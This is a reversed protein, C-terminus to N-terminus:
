FTGTIDFRFEPRRKRHSIESGIFEGGRDPDFFERTRRFRATNANSVELRMKVGFYRTTEAFVRLRKNGEFTQIQDVLFGQDTFSGWYEVGWAFKASTIDQRFEFSLWSPTYWSIKRVNGGIIPDEFSSRRHNYRAELLGGKLFKDLPFNGEIEFGYFRADGANGRGAGGSPLIIEELIDSRWEYYAEAKISGRESFKWDYTAAVRTTKDPRLDPNGATSRDDQANTSAAFLRFNLQGVQKEAEVTLQNNKNFSYTGSIRPKLFSLNQKQNADGSVKIQSAEFTLGGDLTFNDSIQYVFTAFGEGRYEEVTVNASDLMVEVGDEFFELESTRKNKAAEIGFEPKFKGTTKGYTTRLIFESRNADQRFSSESTTDAVFDEFASMNSYDRSKLTGLGILRLKWKNAFTKTWDVGLEAERYKNEEDLFFFDDSVGSDPLRGVFGERTLDGAWNNGGARGNLTLKGGALPRSAEGSTFLFKNGVTRLGLTTATLLSDADFDEITASRNGAFAGIDIDFSTDWKGLKTTIAFELNPRLRGDPARRTKFAWTGSTGTQKRIVNAVTSQGAAEGGSVGGRLIEIREVQAAPIRQLAASLGGSKSTPRAGDILVNGAAGGFGRVNSGRDFSFGPLRNIMELANQPAYQDFFAAPYVDTDAQMLAAAATAAATATANETGAKTNIPAESEDGTVKTAVKVVPADVDDTDQFATATNAAALISVIATTAAFVIRKHRAENETTLSM